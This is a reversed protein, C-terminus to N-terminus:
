CRPCRRRPPLLCSCSRRFLYPRSRRRPCPRSRHHRPPLRRRRFLQPPCRYQHSPCQHRRPRHRTRTCPTARARDPSWERSRCRATCRPRRRDAWPSNSEPLPRRRHSATSGPDPRCSRKRGERSTATTPVLGASAHASKARFVQRRLADYRLKKSGVSVARFMYSSAPSM